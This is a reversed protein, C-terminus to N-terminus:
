FDNNCKISGSKCYKAGDIFRLFLKKIMRGNKKIYNEWQEDPYYEPPTWFSPVKERMYMYYIPDMVRYFSEISKHLNNWMKNDGLMQQMCCPYFIGRKEQCYEDCFFANTFNGLNYLKGPMNQWDEYEVNMYVYWLTDCKKMIEKGAEEDENELTARFNHIDYVFTNEWFDGVRGAVKAISNICLGSGTKKCLHDLLRDATKRIADTDLNRLLMQWIAISLQDNGNFDFFANSYYYPACNTVAKIFKKGCNCVDLEKFFASLETSLFDAGESLSKLSSDEHFLTYLIKPGNEKIYHALKCKFEGCQPGVSELDELCKKDLLYSNHLDIKDSTMECLEPIAREDIFQAIDDRFVYTQNDIKEVIDDIYHVGFIDQISEIVNYDHYARTSGVTTLVVLALLFKMRHSYHKM